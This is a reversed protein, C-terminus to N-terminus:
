PEAMRGIDVRGEAHERAEGGLVDGEVPPRRVVDDRKALHQLLFPWSSHVNTM